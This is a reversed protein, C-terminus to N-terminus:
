AGRLGAAFAGLARRRRLVAGLGGFGALMMAWTSPEPIPDDKILINGGSFASFFDNGDVFRYTVLIGGKWTASDVVKNLDFPDADAVRYTSVLACRQRVGLTETTTGDPLFCSSLSFPQLVERSNDGNPDTPTPVQSISSLEIVSQIPVGTNELRFLLPVLSGSEFVAEDDPVDIALQDARATVAWLSLSAAVAIVSAQSLTPTRMKQDEV